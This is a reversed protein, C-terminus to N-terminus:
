DVDLPVDLPYTEAFWKRKALSAERAAAKAEEPAKGGAIEKDYTSHWAWSELRKKLLKREEPNKPDLESTPKGRKYKKKTEKPSEVDQRSPKKKIAPTSPSSVKPKQAKPKAAKKPLPESEVSTEAKKKEQTSTENKKKAKSKSGQKKPKVANLRQQQSKGHKSLPSAEAASNLLGEDYPEAKMSWMFPGPSSSSAKLESSAREKKKPTEKKSGAGSGLVTDFVAEARDGQFVQLTAGGDIKMAVTLDSSAVRKSSSAGSDEVPVVALSDQEDVVLDIQELLKDLKEQVEESCKRWAVERIKPNQKCQRLHSLGMRILDDLYDVGDAQTKRGTIRTNNDIRELADKHKKGPLLSNKAVGLYEGFLRHHKALWDVPVASKWSVGGPPQLAKALNFDDMESRELLNKIPGMLDAVGISPDATM